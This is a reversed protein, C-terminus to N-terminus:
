DWSIYILGGDHSHMVWSANVSGTTPFRQGSLRWPAAQSGVTQQILGPPAAVNGQLHALLDRLATSM